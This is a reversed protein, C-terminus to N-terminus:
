DKGNCLENTAKRNDAVVSCAVTVNNPASPISKQCTTPGTTKCAGNGASCSKAAHANTCTGGAVAVDPFNEDCPGNCNNDLNDCQPETTTLNGSADVSVNPVGSYDCKYGAAGACRTTPAPNATGCVGLTSCVQPATLGNDVCGDCDNDKGDCVEPAQPSVTCNYNCGIGPTAQTSDRPQTVSVNCTPNTTSSDRHTAYFWGANCSVVYCSGKTDAGKLNCGNTANPLACGSGCAGCNATSSDYRATQNTGDTWTATFGNDVRGDCDNDVGDCKEGGADPGRSGACLLAGNTCQLMGAACVGVCTGNADSCLKGPTGDACRQGIGPDTIAEPPADLESKFNCNDDLGDCVEAPFTCAGDPNCDKGSEAAAKPCHYECGVTALPGTAPNHRYTQHVGNGDNGNFCGTVVCEFKDANSANAQCATLTGAGQGAGCVVGCNGCNAPGKDYRPMRHATDTWTNTFGEDVQGDCNNDNGDCVETAPSTPVCGYECGNKPDGDADYHNPACAKLHCSPTGGDFGGLCEGVGNAYSCVNGCVGCNHENGVLTSPDVDDVFGNCDNDKGDCKEVGDPTCPGGQNTMDPGVNMGDDSGVMDPGPVMDVPPVVGNGSDKCNL